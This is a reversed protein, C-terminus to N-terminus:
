LERYDGQFVERVHWDIFSEHPYYSQRQPYNIKQGHFDMLWEKFGKTGHVDDSVLIELQKSLAFAGLDFLKHHLICLALGNIENSPGGYSKWKIHSAELAIPSTGLKVDFGCVACKYEYARLVNKRFNSPRKRTEIAQVPLEINVAQLIEGHISPPFHRDLWNQSIEFALPPDNQFQEAIAKHFGGSVNHELLDKKRVDGASNPVIKHAYTVKWVSDNRLRWFPYETGRTTQRAGFEQLLKGLDEDIESYSILRRKDRLLRGIAYLILLPKHPAREDSRKWIKVNNFKQIIAERDM